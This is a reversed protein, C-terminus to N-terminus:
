PLHATTSYFPLKDLLKTLRPMDKKYNVDLGYMTNRIPDEGINVKTFFPREGLRVITGGFSLQEKCYKKRPLGAAPWPYIRQQLGFTANNEFNVQVPLGANLIAQNTIKITGLDYNIDYDRRGAISQGGATVTVSGKPINYGISIDASGSTKASGKLCM